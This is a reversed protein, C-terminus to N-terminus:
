IVLTNQRLRQIIEEVKVEGTAIKITFGHAAEQSATLVYGDNALLTTMALFGTRKNGDVFPHNVILSEGLAAAKDFIRLYL